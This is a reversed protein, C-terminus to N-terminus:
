PKTSAKKLATYIKCGICYDFFAELLAFTIFICSLIVAPIHLNFIYLVVLNFSMIMGLVRAFKKPADDVSKQPLKLVEKCKKSLPRFIGYRNQTALKLLFDIALLLPMVFSCTMVFITVIAATIFAEIRELYSDTRRQSIPCCKAM